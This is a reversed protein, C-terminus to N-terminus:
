EPLRDPLNDFGRGRLHRAVEPWAETFANKVAISKAPGAKMTLELTYKTNEGGRSRTREAALRAGLVDDYAVDNHELFWLYVDQVVFHRDDVTVKNLLIMVPVLIGFLVAAIVLWVGVSRNWFRFAQVGGYGAALGSLFLVAPVWGAFAYTKVGDQESVAYCGALLVCTLGLGVTRAFKSVTM